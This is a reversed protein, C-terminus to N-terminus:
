QLFLPGFSLALGLIGSLMCIAVFKTSRDHHQFPPIPGHQIHSAVLISLGGFILNSAMAFWCWQEKGRLPFAILFLQNIGLAFLKAAAWTLHYRAHDPWSKDFAHSPILHTFPLLLACLAPPVSLWQAIVFWNLNM